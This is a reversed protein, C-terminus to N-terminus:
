SVNWSRGSACVVPLPRYPVPLAHVRRRPQCCGRLRGVVLLPHSRERGCPERSCHHCLATSLLDGGEEVLGALFALAEEDLDLVQLGALLDFAGGVAEGLAAGVDVGADRLEVVLDTFEFARVATRHEIVYGGTAQSGFAGVAVGVCASPGGVALVLSVRPGAFRPIRAQLRDLTV